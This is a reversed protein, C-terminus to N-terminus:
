FLKKLARKAKKKANKLKKKKGKLARKAKAGAKKLGKKKLAKLTSKAQKEVNKLTKKVEKNKGLAKLAAGAGYAIVVAGVLAAAGVNSVKPKTLTGGIKLKVPLPAKSNM